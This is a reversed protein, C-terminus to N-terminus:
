IRLLGYCKYTSCAGAARLKDKDQRGEVVAGASSASVSAAAAAGSASAPQKSQSQSLPLSQIFAELVALESIERRLQVAYHHAM